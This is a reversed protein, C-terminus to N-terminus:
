DFQIKAATKNGPIDTAIVQVAAAINQQCEYLWTQTEEVFVAMGTELQKDAADYLIVKVADVHVNDSADILMRDLRRKGSFHIAHIVPGHQYDQIATRHVSGKGHCRSQYFDRLAKHQRVNTAYVVPGKVGLGAGKVPPPAAKNMTFQPHWPEGNWTFLPLHTNKM